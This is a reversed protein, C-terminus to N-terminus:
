NQCIMRFIRIKIYLRDQYKNLEAANKRDTKVKNKKVLFYRLNLRFILFNKNIHM